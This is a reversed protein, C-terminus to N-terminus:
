AFSAGTALYGIFNFWGCIYALSLTWKHKKGALIAAWHYVSGATPYTACIESLSLSTLVTFVFSLCWGWVMVVPGGTDLGYDFLLSIGVMVGIAAFNFSFAMFSDM